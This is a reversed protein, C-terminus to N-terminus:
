AKVIRYRVSDRKSLVKVAISAIQYTGYEFVTGSRSLAYNGDKDVLRFMAVRWGWGISNGFGM